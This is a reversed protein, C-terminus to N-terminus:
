RSPLHGRASCWVTYKTGLCVSECYNARYTTSRGLDAFAGVFDPSKCAWADILLPVKEARLAESAYGCYSHIGIGPLPMRASVLHSRHNSSPLSPNPRFGESWFRVSWSNSCDSWAWSLDRFRLQCRSTFKRFETKLWAAGPHQWLRTRCLPVSYPDPQNM